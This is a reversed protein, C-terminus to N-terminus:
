SNMILHILVHAENRLAGAEKPKPEYRRAMERGM